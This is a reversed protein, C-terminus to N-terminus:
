GEQPQIGLNEGTAKNYRVLGGYQSEAYITNPDEPDVQSRFGDGGNTIFWDSNVIGHANKTRAPGGLSNNDQTGGYVNYFPQSNDVTVDYFQGVNLNSKFHWNVGRDHSEYLGGDSGCLLYDTDNPDIWLAHNDVHKSREGLRRVTKGGDDSVMNFTNMMYIRDVNKPDVYITSYYMATADFDNRKEWTAGRDRTRFIGGKREAAEVTAYLVNPDTASIALGVRGIDVTPLGSKLKTWTAGADTSKHIASEPGGNIFSYVHRRRQYTAAYLVDPNTPDMVVDTVGTNESINLSHKWTKGADTSKYLGRDGGPGWLPGQSAVYIVNSDRPDILIRAIHESKKLGMHKWSKGGDDSRYVGDGYGVSRQSNNEGTGVWIINSDKPDMAVTGISYSGENEFVPTWTTGNNDTRWVGGSAVGVYYHARNKPNVALSSVRGSIVAPGIARAKLGSFVGSNMPDKPKEEEKKDDKKEDKANNGKKSAEAKKEAGSKAKPDKAPDAQKPTPVSTQKDSDGKAPTSPPMQKPDDSQAIALTCLFLSVALALALSRFRIM